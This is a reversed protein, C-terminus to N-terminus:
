AHRRELSEIEADLAPVGEEDAASLKYSREVYLQALRAGETDPRQAADILEKIRYNAPLYAGIARMEACTSEVLATDRVEVAYRLTGLRRAIEAIREREPLVSYLLALGETSEGGASQVPQSSAAREWGDKYATAYADGIEAVRTMLTAPDSASTFPDVLIDDGRWDAMRRLESLKLTEPVPPIPFFATQSPLGMSGLSSALLPPIYKGVDFAIPGVVIYTATVDEGNGFYLFAHGAPHYADGREFTLTAV